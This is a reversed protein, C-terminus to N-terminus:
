ITKHVPFVKRTVLLHQACPKLHKYLEGIPTTHDVSKSHENLTNILGNSCFVTIVDNRSLLGDSM